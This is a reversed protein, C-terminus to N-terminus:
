TSASSRESGPKRSLLRRHPLTYAAVLHDGFDGREDVVNVADYEYRAVERGVHSIHAMRVNAPSVTLLRSAMLLAARKGPTSDAVTSLAFITAWRAAVPAM